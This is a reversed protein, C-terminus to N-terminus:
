FRISFHQKEHFEERFFVIGIFFLDITCRVSPHKKITEWAQEMERSWHIDDFVLISDNNTKSLLQLFYRETPERRHNGDIFAFDVTTLGHVVSSFSNDFNGEAISVNQLGLLKFNKNAVAAVEKAGELTIINSDSKALSLYSTTIGLSTGLELITKPQCMKVIRFLLQGFKKPKAASRAISAITRQGAQGTPLNTKAVSSGAGFDEINLVTKDTLLQQRLREVEDYAPYHKKDNLVKTILDFVFPSHVGHGKGNSATIYYTLYKGVLKWKSYM